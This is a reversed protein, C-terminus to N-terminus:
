FDGPAVQFCTLGKERWVNVVQNRDDFVAVVNYFPEVFKDYIEAKVISDKRSDGSKRMFMRDIRLGYSELSQRTIDWAKDERGSMVIFTADPYAVQLGILTIFVPSNPLDSVAAMSDFPNRGNMLELTGDVDTIFAMTKEPSVIFPRAEVKNHNKKQAMLRKHMRRIVTDPVRDYSSRAANRQLCVELPTDFEKIVFEAGFEKAIKRFRTINKPDINTDAVVVSFGNKLSNKVRADQTLTISDEQENTLVTKGTVKYLESRLADRESVSRYLWDKSRWEQAWTTKGCAPIGRTIILQQTM